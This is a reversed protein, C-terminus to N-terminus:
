QEGDPGTDAAEADPGADAKGADPGAEAGGDAKGAEGGAEQPGTDATGGEPVASDGVTGDASADPAKPMPVVNDDGNGCALLVASAVMASGAILIAVSRMQM